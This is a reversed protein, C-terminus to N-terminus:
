PCFILYLYAAFEFCLMHSIVLIRDSISFLMSDLPTILYSPWFCRYFLFSEVQDATERELGLRTSYQQMLTITKIWKQWGNCIIDSCNNVFYFVSQSLAFCEFFYLGKIVIHRIILSNRKFLFFLNEHRSRMNFFSQIFFLGFVRSFLSYCIIRFKQNIFSSTPEAYKDLNSCICFLNVIQIM